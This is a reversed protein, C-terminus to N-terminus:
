GENPGGKSKKNFMQLQWVAFQKLLDFPTKIVSGFSFAKSFGWGLQPNEPCLFIATVPLCWFRLKKLVIWQYHTSEM